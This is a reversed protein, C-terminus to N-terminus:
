AKLGDSLARMLSHASVSEANLSFYVYSLFDDGHDHRVQPQALWFILLRELDQRDSFAMPQLESQLFDEFSGHKKKEADSLENWKRALRNVM